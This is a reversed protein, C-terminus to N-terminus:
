AMSCFARSTSHLTPDGGAPVWGAVPITGACFNLTACCYARGRENQVAPFECRRGALQHRRPRLPRKPGPTRGRTPLMQLRLVVKVQHMLARLLAPQVAVPTRRVATRPAALRLRVGRLPAQQVRPELIRTRAALMQLRARCPEM